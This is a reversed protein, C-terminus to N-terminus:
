YYAIEIYKTPVYGREGNLRQALTWGDGSDQELISLTENVAIDMASTIDGKKYDYKVQATGIVQFGDSIGPTQKGDEFVEYQNDGCDVQDYQSDVYMIEKNKTYSNCDSGSEISTKSVLGSHNQLNSQAHNYTYHKNTQQTKIIQAKVATSSASECCYSEDDEDFSENVCQNSSNHTISNVNSNVISNAKGHNSLPTGPISNNNNNNSSNVSHQSPSQYIHNNIQSSNQQQNCLNSNQQENQLANFNNYMDAKVNNYIAVYKELDNNLEEIRKNMNEIEAETQRSDGLAQNELYTNHMKIAGGRSKEAKDIQSKIDSIRDALKNKIQEPPLDAWESAETKGSLNLAKKFRSLTKFKDKRKSNLKQSTSSLNALLQASITGNAKNNLTSLSSTHNSSGNMKISSASEPSVFLFDEPVSFGTKFQHVCKETDKEPHVLSTSTLIQNYCSNIRPSVELDLHATDRICGKFNEIRRIEITQLMDFVQPLQTKYYLSKKSNTMDIQLIHDNKLHEMANKKKEVNNFANKVDIKTSTEDNDLRQHDLRAKELSRCAREYKEKTKQMDKVSIQYDNHYRDKEMMCKKRDDKLSRVTQDINPIVQAEINESVLEHQSAKDRLENLMTLYCNSCSDNQDNDPSYQDALKKLERAYMNEIECRKKLFMGYRINFEIGKHVYKAIDDFKDWLEIGWRM